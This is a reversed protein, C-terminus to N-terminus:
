LVGGMNIPKFYNCKKKPQVYCEWIRNCVLSNGKEGVCYICNYCLFETM